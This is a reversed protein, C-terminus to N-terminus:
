RQEGVYNKLEGKLREICELGSAVTECKIRLNEVTKQANENKKQDALLNEYEADLEKKHELLKKKYVETCKGVYNIVNSKMTPIIQDNLRNYISDAVLRVHDKLHHYPVKEVRKFTLGEEVDEYGSTKDKAEKDIKDFDAGTFNPNYADAPISNPDNTYQILKKNCDAIVRNAMERRFSKANDIADMTMTKMSSFTTDSIQGESLKRFNELKDEYKSQMKDAENMIIGEGGINDTYDRYIQNIGDNLKVYVEAIEKKKAKISDELAAPDNVHAKATKLLDKYIVQSHLYEKELNELFEILQIYNAVRAFKEIANQVSNFNSSETMREEFKNIDGRAKLWCKSAPAYDNDDRELEEFYEDIADETGLNLCTNLFLQMKSDVFIIKEKNIDNGYMALAQEKLSNFESGQLNSKGTFILFLSEKKRSACNNRLFNMFSTSELAQGSLSKVFIIANADKICDEAIKGVNGGAGVGPSDIITIGKMEESLPYTIEIETIIKGWNDANENIYARILKKYETEDINFINDKLEEELFSDMIQNPVKKGKYKILIENNITTLPINRYKDSIAAHEKLFKRIEEFGKKTTQGGTASRAILKFENGKNIKIIASTCQRVDMPVVEKGLYANIFTSKGSKAEGLIMLNFIEDRIKAAQEIISDNPKKNLKNCLEVYEDFLSLVQEKNQKYDKSIM